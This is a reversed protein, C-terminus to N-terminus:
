LLLARNHINTHQKELPLIWNVVLNSEDDVIQSVAYRYTSEDNGENEEQAQPLTVM